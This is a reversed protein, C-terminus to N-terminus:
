YNIQLNHVNQSTYEVFNLRHRKTGIKPIGSRKIILLIRRYILNKDSRYFGENISTSTFCSQVYVNSTLISLSRHVKKFQLSTVSYSFIYLLFISVVFLMSPDITLQLFNVKEGIIFINQYHKCHVKRLPSLPIYQRLPRFSIM